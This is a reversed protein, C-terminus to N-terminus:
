SLLDVASLVAVIAGAIGALTAALELMTDPLSPGAITSRPAEGALSAAPSPSHGLPRFGNM